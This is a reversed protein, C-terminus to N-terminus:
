FAELERWDVSSYIGSFVWTFNEACTVLDSIVLSQTLVLRWGLLGGGRWCNKVLVMSM